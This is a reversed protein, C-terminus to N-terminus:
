GIQTGVKYIQETIFIDVKVNSLKFNIIRFNLDTYKGM